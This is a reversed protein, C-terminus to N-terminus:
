IDLGKNFWVSIMCRVRPAWKKFEVCIKLMTLLLVMIKHICFVEDKPICM